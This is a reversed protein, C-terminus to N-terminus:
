RRLGPRTARARGLVRFLRQLVDTSEVESTMTSLVTRLLRTIGEAREVNRGLWFLNDAVRSPLDSGSRRLVVADGPPALLTM